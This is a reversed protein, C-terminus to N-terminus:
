SRAAALTNAIESWEEVTFSEPRRVPDIGADSLAAAATAPVLEDSLQRLVTGLQKRRYQFVGRILAYFFGPDDITARPEPLSRMQVIASHVDPQPWFSSPSLRAVLKVEYYLQSWIALPGYDRTGPQARVRQAVEQQITVVIGEPRQVSQVWNVLIRTGCSYPLNSVCRDFVGLEEFGVDLADAQMFSVAESDAFESELYACLGRDKEVALLRSVRTALAETLAGLGPGVELVRHERRLDAADIIRDRSAEDILFNQGWQKRPRFGLGAFAQKVHAIDTRASRPSNGTM